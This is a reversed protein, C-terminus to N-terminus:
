PYMHHWYLAQTLRMDVATVKTHNYRYQFQNSGSLQGPSKDGVYTYLAYGRYAWQKTGDDRTYVSWQGTSRADSPAALPHRERLCDSDCGATGLMRGFAPAGRSGARTYHTGVKTDRYGERLYLSMGKATALIPGVGPADRIVVSPPMFHTRVIALHLRPDVDVGRVDGSAADHFYTFLPQGKYAWQLTGDGRKAITFDGLPNALQGAVVPKWVSSCKAGRKCMLDDVSKRTQLAYVSFRRLDVLAQASANPVDVVSVGYPTQIGKEPSYALAHWAGDAGNGKIDGIKEDQAFTYVPKEEFVWQATSKVISWQGATKDGKDALVPKWSAQCSADCNSKGDVDKDSVYLTMGKQDGYYKEQVTIGLPTVPANMDACLANSVGFAGFALVLLVTRSTFFPRSTM